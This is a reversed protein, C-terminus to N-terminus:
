FLCKLHRKINTPLELHWKKLEEISGNYRKPMTTQIIAWEYATIDSQITYEFVQVVKFELESIESTPKFCDTTEEWIEKCYTKIANFIRMYPTYWIHPYKCSIKFQRCILSEFERHTNVVETKPVPAKLWRLWDTLIFFYLPSVKIGTLIEDKVM